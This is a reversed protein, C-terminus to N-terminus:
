IQQQRQPCCQQSGQLLRTLGWKENHMIARRLAIKERKFAVKGGVEKTDYKQESGSLILDM